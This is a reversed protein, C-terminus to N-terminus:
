KLKEKEKYIKKGLKCRLCGEYILCSQNGGFGFPKGKHKKLIDIRAKCTSISHRSKFKKCNIVKVKM